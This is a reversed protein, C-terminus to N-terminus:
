KWNWCKRYVADYPDPRDLAAQERMEVEEYRKYIPDTIRSLSDKLIEEVASHDPSEMPNKRTPLGTAWSIEAEIEGALDAANERALKGHGREHELVANYECSGEPYEKPIYIVVSSISVEVIVDDFWAKVFLSRTATEFRTRTAMSHRITTLGQTKLGSGVAGPLRAIESLSLDHRIENPVTTALVRFRYTSRRPARHPVPLHQVAPKPPACASFLLPLLVGLRRTM